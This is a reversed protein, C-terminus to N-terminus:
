KAVAETIGVAVEVAKEVGLQNVYVNACSHVEGYIELTVVSMYETSGVIFIRSGNVKYALAKKASTGYRDITPDITAPKVGAAKALHADLETILRVFARQEDDIKGVSAFEELRKRLEDSDASENILARIEQQTLISM